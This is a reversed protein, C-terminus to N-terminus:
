QRESVDVAPQEGCERLWQCLSERTWRPRRATVYVPRPVREDRRLRAFTSESVNIFAAAERPSLAERELAM